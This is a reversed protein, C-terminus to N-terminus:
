EEDGPELEAQGESPGATPLFRTGVAATPLEIGVAVMAMVAENYLYFPWLRLSIKDVSQLNDSAQPCLTPLGPM